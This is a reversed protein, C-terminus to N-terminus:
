SFIDTCHIFVGGGGVGSKITFSPNASIPPELTYGCDIDQAFNNSFISKMQRFKQEQFFEGYIAHILKRLPDFAHRPFEVQM